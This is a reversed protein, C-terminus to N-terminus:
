DYGSGSRGFSPHGEGKLEMVALGKGREADMVEMGMVREYFPVSREWDATFLLGRRLHPMTMLAERVCSLIWAGLGQGRLADDVWVDTLYAFTTFDTICRAFGVLGKSKTSPDSTQSDQFLGFCLSSDLTERMIDPPLTKAWYFTPSAFLDVLFDVPVLSANTTITYGERHWERSTAGAKSPTTM